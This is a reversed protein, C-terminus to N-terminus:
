LIAPGAATRWDHNPTRIVKSPILRDRRWKQGFFLVRLLVSIIRHGPTSHVIKVYSNYTWTKHNHISMGYEPFKIAKDM